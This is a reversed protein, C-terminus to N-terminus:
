SDTKPLLSDLEIDVENDGLPKSDGASSMPAQMAATSALFRIPRRTRPSLRDLVSALQTPIEQADQDYEHLLVASFQFQLTVEPVLGKLPMLGLAILRAAVQTVSDRSKAGELILGFRSPGVRAATDVDRLVRRLKIVSRLISQEAVTTGYTASITDHNVLSVLVVAAPEGHRRSRQVAQLVRDEFLHGALLGTLADQTAMAQSRTQAAHRERSRLNLAVMLLPVELLMAAVVGYQVLWSIPIWGFARFIALLVSLALPCYAFFVWRGVGDGRRWAALACYIGATSVMLIYAGLMLVGVGRDLLVFAVALVPGAGGLVVLVNAWRPSYRKVALVANIFYLAAGGTFLALAGQAADAWVPSHNWLMQAALGTYAGVALVMLTAYLGYLVYMMDRYTYGLVFCLAVLLLLGGLVIGLGLYAQHDVEQAQTQSAMWLPVNLPTSGKIQLYVVTNGPPLNIQFRPYRGPETWQAVAISDGASQAVWGDAGGPAPTYLTVKDILPLPVWLRWQASAADPRDLALRVWLRQQPKLNYMTSPDATAFSAVSPSAAIQSISAQAADEYWWQSQATVDRPQGTPDLTVAHVWSAPACCLALLALCRAVLRM